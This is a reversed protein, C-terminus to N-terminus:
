HITLFGDAILSPINGNFTRGPQSLGRHSVQVEVRDKEQSVDPGRGRDTIPEAFDCKGTM